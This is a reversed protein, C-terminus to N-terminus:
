CVKGSFGAAMDEVGDKLGEVSPVSADVKASPADMSGKMDPASVKVDPSSMVGSEGGSPLEVPRSSVSPMEPAKVGVSM